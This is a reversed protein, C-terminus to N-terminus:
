WDGLVMQVAALAAIAATDARLIRPGLSIAVTDKRAHLRAREEADFGGEPGILLAWPAGRGGDAALRELTVKADGPAAAEDCFLIRRPAERETWHSLLADLKEAERVEPLAVLGCQEAAEVVNARLREDKVRSVTTRHTVVPQIMAAGMETAKQAIFDLRAKKVPAFLLWIDPLAQHARTREIVRLVAAKKSAEAIEAVWEGDYGNFVLVREGEGMRLVNTLYHSQDKDLAVDAGEAMPADVYLRTKGTGCHAPTDDDDHDRM